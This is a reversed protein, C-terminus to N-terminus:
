RPLVGNLNLTLIACTRTFHTIVFYPISKIQSRSSTRDPTALAIFLIM